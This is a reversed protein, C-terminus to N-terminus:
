PLGGSTGTGTSGSGTSGTGTNDARVYTITSLKVSQDSNRYRYTVELDIQQLGSSTTDYPWSTVTAQWHFTPYDPSFDGSLAGGQWQNTAQIENLKSEALGAAATRLKSSTALGTAVSLGEKIAPAVIALLMITALVEVLTFGRAASRRPAVSRVDGVRSNKTARTKLGHPIRGACQVANM